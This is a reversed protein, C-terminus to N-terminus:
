IWTAFRILTGKGQKRDAVEKKKQDFGLEGIISEFGLKSEFASGKSNNM